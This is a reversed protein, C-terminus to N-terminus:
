AHVTESKRLLAHVDDSEVVLGYLCHCFLGVQCEPSMRVAYMVILAGKGYKDSTLSSKFNYIAHM